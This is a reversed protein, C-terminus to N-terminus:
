LFGVCGPKGKLLYLPVLFSLNIGMHWSMRVDTWYDARGVEIINEVELIRCNSITPEADRPIPVQFESHIDSSPGVIADATASALNKVVMRRPGLDRSITFFFQKQQLKVKPTVTRSSGNNIDCFIRVTDGEFPSVCLTITTGLITKHVNWSDSDHCISLHFSPCFVLHSPKERLLHQSALLVPHVGCAVCLWTTAGQFLISCFLLKQCLPEASCKSLDAYAVNLHEYINKKLYIHSCYNLNDTVSAHNSCCSSDLLYVRSKPIMVKCNKLQQVWCPQQADKVLLYTAQSVPLLTGSLTVPWKGVVRAHQYKLPKCLEIGDCFWWIPAM